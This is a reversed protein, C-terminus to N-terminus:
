PQFRNVACVVQEVEADTLAPHCPLSLEEAALRETVPLSLEPWLGAYCRQRHPPIPYHIQTEIGQERLYAQLRDRHPSCLPFIHWV